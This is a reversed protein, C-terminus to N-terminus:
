FKRVIGVSIITYLNWAIIVMFWYNLFVVVRPRKLRLAVAVLFVALIKSLLLAAVPGLRMLRSIFISGEAAGLRLGILTTLIDLCQLTLFAVLSPAPFERRLNAFM